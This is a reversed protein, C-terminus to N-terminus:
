RVEVVYYAGIHQPIFNNPYESVLDKVTYYEGEKLWLFQIHYKHILALRDEIPVGRNFMAQRDLLRQNREAPTYFYPYSTDSPRFSILKAKASIIPIFDNLRETGVAFTQSTPISDMLAGIKSFDAYRQNNSIFRNWNPLNQERMFVYLIAASFITLTALLWPAPAIKTRTQLPRLWNTLRTTLGTMDGLKTLAFTMGIGYPYIWPTRELMWASVVSGLIWGTLPFWALFSLVFCALVFQSVHDRRTQPIAALAAFIPVLIWIFPLVPIKEAYPIHMALIEPNYGYFQTHGWVSVVSAINQSSLVDEPSYPIVGQAETPIFRLAVQPLMILVLLILLGVRARVNAQNLGLLAMLGTVLIAFVLIVPHMIMLSLGTLLVLIVNTKIPREFYWVISQVFVPVVLFAATAKDNSLGMFFLYGPHLYDSLLAVFLLQFVVAASAKISSFGLTRALEYVSLLSLVVLFPEYYGGLLFVGTLGSLNALFAQSFPTSIIWFRVSALKEVGFFIDNFNLAAAHQWNTVYGIYSLDDDSIVRQISMLRGLLLMLGVPWFSLLDWISNPRIHLHIKGLNTFVFWLLLVFSLGLIGNELVSFSVHVLRALTGLLALILHSIVFGFTLYNLWSTPRSKLFGYICAGPIIFMTLALSLRLWPFSSLWAQWPAFWATLWAAAAIISLLGHKVPNTQLTLPLNVRMFVFKVGQIM